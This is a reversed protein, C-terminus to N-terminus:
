ATLSLKNHQPRPPHKNHQHMKEHKTGSKSLQTEAGDLPTESASGSGTSGDTFKNALAIDAAPLSTPLIDACPTDAGLTGITVTYPNAPKEAQRVDGVGFTHLM